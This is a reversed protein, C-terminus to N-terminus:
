APIIPDIAFKRGPNLSSALPKRAAAASTRRSFPSVTIAGKTFRSTTPYYKFNTQPLVFTLRIVIVQM